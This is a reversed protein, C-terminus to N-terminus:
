DGNIMMQNTTQFMVISVQNTSTPQNKMTDQNSTVPVMSHIIVKGNMNPTDDDWSVFDMM